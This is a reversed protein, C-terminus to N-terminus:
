WIDIMDFIRVELGSNDGILGLGIFIDFFVVFFLFIPM